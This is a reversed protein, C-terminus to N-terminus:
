LNEVEEQTFTQSALHYSPVNSTDFDMISYETTAEKKGKSYVDKIITVERRISSVNEYSKNPETRKLRPTQAIKELNTLNNAAFIIDELPYGEREWHYKPFMVRVKIKPMEGLETKTEYKKDGEKTTKLVFWDFNNLNGTAFFKGNIQFTETPKFDYLKTDRNYSNNFKDRLEIGSIGQLDFITFYYGNACGDIWGKYPDPLGQLHLSVNTYRGYISEVVSRLTPKIRKLTNIKQETKM